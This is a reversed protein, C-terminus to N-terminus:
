AARPSAVEPIHFEAKLLCGNGPSSDIEVKGNYLEARNSINTFGIGKSQQNIDFGKGNDGVSLFIVNEKEFM